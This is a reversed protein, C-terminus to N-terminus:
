SSKTNKHLVLVMEGKLKQNELTQALESVLGRYITEHLKTLERAIVLQHDQFGYEMLNKLTKQLRHPSEYLIITRSEDKLGELLTKRGKKTPLFGLYVFKDMPLGSTVLAALLASPGPIPEVKIGEEIARRILLYGPDSIGPTGADSVLAVHQNDHLAAIIKDLKAQGSHAHFSIQPTTIEFHKLLRGTHRTDESAILDVEKLTRIARLTMDELNGIPTSVISLM